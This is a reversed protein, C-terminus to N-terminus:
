LPPPLPPEDPLAFLLEEQPREVMNVRSKWERYLRAQTTEPVGGHVNGDLALSDFSNGDQSM